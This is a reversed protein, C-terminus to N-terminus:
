SGPAVERLREVFESPRDVSLLLSYGARTPVYVVQRPDTVYLLAKEGNSLRFWGSRYGPIATGMTRSRPRLPRDRDLDVVRAAGGRLKAAPLKRGYLDGRLQLGAPSVEFTASRSGRISLGVLSITAGLILVPLILLLVLVLPTRGTAPVIHFVESMHERANLAM